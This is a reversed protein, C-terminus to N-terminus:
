ATNGLLHQLRRDVAEPSWEQQVRLRGNRALKEWLEPDEHLRVIREAFEEASDAIMADLHDRLGMGEAGISTTVVPLGCAMAEGIKGKMGSGYRLPAISVLASQLYPASYPVYGTVVVRDSALAVIEAPPANGVVWLKTEPLSAQVFPFVDKCFYLIADVNPAHPFGGVFLLHSRGQRGVVHEPFTHINSIV